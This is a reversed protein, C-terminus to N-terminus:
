KNLTNIDIALGDPILYFVDIHNEFMKLIVSYPLLDMRCEEISIHDFDSMEDLIDEFKKYDSLPRLIPKVNEIGAMQKERSGVYDTVFVFPSDLSIATLDRKNKGLLVKLGYPLYPVIEKITLKRM